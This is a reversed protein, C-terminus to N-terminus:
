SGSSIPWAREGAQALEKCLIVNTHGEPFGQLEVVRRFGAKEYFGPAQFDYSGVWVRRVRRRRAEEVFAELLARGHGAGRLPEAVWMQRLEAIGAWSYGAAVGVTEAGARLVFALGKGDDCGTAKRNFEYLRTETAAVESPPFEHWAEPQGIM